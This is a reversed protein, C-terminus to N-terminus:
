VWCTTGHQKPLSAQVSCRTRSGAGSVFKRKQDQDYYLSRSPVTTHTPQSPSSQASVQARDRKAPPAVIKQRPQHKTQNAGLRDSLTQVEAPTTLGSVTTQDADNKVVVYGFCTSAVDPDHQEDSPVSERQKQDLFENLQKYAVKFVADTVTLSRSVNNSRPTSNGLTSKKKLHPTSHHKLLPSSSSVENSTLSANDRHTPTATPSKLPNCRDNVKHHNTRSLDGFCRFLLRWKPQVVVVVDASAQRQKQRRYGM